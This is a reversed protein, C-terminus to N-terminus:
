CTMSSDPFHLSFTVTGLMTRKIEHDTSKARQIGLISLFNTTWKNRRPMLQVRNVQVEASDQTIFSPETLMAALSFGGFLFRQASIHLRTHTHTHSRISENAQLRRWMGSQCLCSTSHRRGDSLVVQLCVVSAARAWVPRGETWQCRVLESHTKDPRGEIFM